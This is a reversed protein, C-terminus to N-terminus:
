QCCLTTNIFIFSGAVQASVLCDAGSDHGKALAIVCWVTNIFMCVEVFLKILM